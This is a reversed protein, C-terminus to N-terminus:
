KRKIKVYTDQDEAGNLLSLSKAETFSVDYQDKLINVGNIANIMQRGRIPDVNLCEQNQELYNATEKSLSLTEKSTGQACYSIVGNEELLPMLQNRVIDAFVDGNIYEPINSLYISSFGNFDSKKTYKYKELADKLRSIDTRVHSIKTDCIAEQAKKYSIENELYTGEGKEGSTGAITRLVSSARYGPISQLVMDLEVANAQRLVNEISPTNFRLMKIFNDTYLKERSRLKIIEDIFAYLDYDIESSSKLKEYVEPSLFYKSAPDSFFGYFEDYTMNQLGKLKLAAPYYQHKNIDFTLIERAGYLSGNIAFDGSCLVTAFRKDPIILDSIYVKETPNLYLTPANEFLQQSLNRNIDNVMVKDQICKKAEERVVKPKGHKENLLKIKTEKSM